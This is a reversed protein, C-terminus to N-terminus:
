STRLRGVKSLPEKSNLFSKKLYMKIMEALVKALIKYLGTVLSIPRFDKARCANLKKPILCIFTENVSKNIVRTEWFEEFFQIIDHKITEWFDQFFALSFGDPGPSKNRGCAFVAARIEDETFPLSLSGASVEALPDWEINNWECNTTPGARYLTEFFHNIEEVIEAEVITISGDNRELKWLANKAKRASLLNHFMSTNGDGFKAWSIKSKFRAAREENALIGDLQGKPFAREHRLM